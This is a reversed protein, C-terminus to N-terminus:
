VGDLGEYKSTGLADKGAVPMIRDALLHVSLSYTFFTYTPYLIIGNEQFPAGIFGNPSVLLFTNIHHHNIIQVNIWM